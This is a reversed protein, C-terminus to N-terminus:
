PPNPGFSTTHFMGLAGSTRVMVGGFRFAERALSLSGGKVRNSLEHSTGPLTM